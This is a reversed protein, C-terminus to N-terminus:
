VGFIKRNVREVVEATHSEALHAYRKVMQMTKHGLIEAIELLSAGNMALMSAASHRLDHFKFDALEARELAREWSKIFDLPKALNKPSPFLLPSLARTKGWEQLIDIAVTALPVGRREGNKTHEFVVRRRVFDIDRWRLSAIENRRAGTTLALMVIPYLPKCKAEKCAKLLREREEQGLFRVRGRPEKLKRVKTCPNEQLWGFERVALTCAHSLSAMFRNVTATTRVKGRLGHEQGLQERLEVIKPTTLDSLLLHGLNKSWWELHHRRAELTAPRAALVAAYRQLLDAVTHRRAEASPLYRGERMAAETSHAWRVADTRRKFTATQVPYGKVRIRVRFSKSGDQAAHLNISPM